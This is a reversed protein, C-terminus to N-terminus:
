CTICSLCCVQFMVIPSVCPQNQSFNEYVSQLWSGNGKGFSVKDEAMLCNISSRCIYMAYSCITIMGNAGGVCGNEQRAFQGGGM